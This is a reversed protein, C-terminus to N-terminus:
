RAVFSAPNEGNVTVTYEVGSEFDSGQGLPVVTELIPFDM